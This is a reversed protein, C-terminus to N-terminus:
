YAPPPGGYGGPAGGYGGPPVEGRFARKVEEDILIMLAWIGMPIGLICCPSCPVMAAIAGALSLGWGRLQRMQLAGYITLGDLLLKAVAMGIMIGVGPLAEAADRDAIAAVGIFGVLVIYLVDFLAGLGGAVLLGISPPRVRTLPDQQV